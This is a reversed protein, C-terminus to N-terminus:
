VNGDQFLKMENTQTTRHSLKMCLDVAYSHLDCAFTSM